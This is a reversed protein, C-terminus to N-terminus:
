LDPCRLAKAKQSVMKSFLGAAGCYAHSAFQQYCMVFKSLKREECSINPGHLILFVNKMVNSDAGNM